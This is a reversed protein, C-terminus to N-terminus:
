QPTNQWARYEDDTQDYDKSEEGQTTPMWKGEKLGFRLVRPFVNTIWRNEQKRFYTWGEEVHLTGEYPYTVGGITAVDVRISETTLFYKTPRAVAIDGSDKGNQLAGELVNIYKTVFAAFSKQAEKDPDNSSLSPACGVIVTILLTTATIRTKM